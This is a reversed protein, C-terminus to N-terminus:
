MDFAFKRPHPHDPSGYPVLMEACSMRYFVPRVEGGDNYTVTSLVIGERPTFGQPL